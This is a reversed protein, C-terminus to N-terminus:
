RAGPHREPQPSCVVLGHRVQRHRSRSPKLSTLPRNKPVNAPGAVQEELSTPRRRRMLKRFFASLLGGAQAAIFNAIGAALPKPGGSPRERRAVVGDRITSLALNHAEIDVMPRRWHRHSADADAQGRREM